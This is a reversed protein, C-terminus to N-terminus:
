KLLTVNGKYSYASGNECIVEAIYVFVDPHPVVGNIKGDWGFVPDNPKFNAKDFVLGGWRNFVKFSKVLQIGTARVMLIDNLGDNDPTFANPIYVQADSCFAEIHISDTGACGYYNTATVFYTIKRHIDAIPLPCTTCSLFTSPSWSWTKMPGETYTTKLPFLTGTSLLQNPGLDIKPYNGVGVMVYATDRFCNFEDSGIVRYRITKDPTSIPNSITDGSLFTSPSWEFHKAGSVILQKSQGICISDDKSVAIKFNPIVKVTITDYSFCGNLSSGKVTYPTTQLPTANPNSCDTCSLGQTPYWNYFTAGSASIAITSGRCITVDPTGKVVPTPYINITAKATDFCGFKTGAVFTYQLSAQKSYANKFTSGYVIDGNSVTWKMLSLSDPSTIFSNLIMEKGTCASTDGSIQAQPKSKVFIPIAQILTDSCGSFGTVISQITYTNSSTYLHSEKFKNGVSADGFDWKISSLGYFANSTDKLDLKTSGCIADSVFSFGNVIKDITITDTLPVSYRCGLKSTFWVKPLFKGPKIYQHYVVWDTTTILIGDGFDWRISDTSLPKAEFRVAKKICNFGASYLVTGNPAVIAINKKGIYNCGGSGKVLLTASFLGTKVYTHVVSDGQQINGDGFDWTSNYNNRYNHTFTIDVPTCNAITDSAKYIIQVTDVIQIIRELTDLCVIGPANTKYAILQVTYLGSKTYGYGPDVYKSNKGDGFNWFYSDAGTSRNTFYISDGICAKYTNTGFDPKPIGFVNIEEVTSTDTCGNTALLAVQYKGASLFTYVVTDINKTTSRINGDGFDWRFASVGSSNNIFQVTLPLCGEKENGNVAVDLKITNPTVIVAYQSSDMGCENVAYLKVYFTDRKNTYFIHSISDKALTSDKSGDGFDWIYRNGLGKSTNNFSVKLPSCGITRSPSFISKPRAKVRIRQRYEVVNCISTVKLTVTYITDGYNPNSFFTVDDPQPKNSTIGNGFDWEYTFFNIDNTQNNFKVKLPGCGVSDSVAFTPHPLKYTIFRYQISDAKCGFLSNTILKVVVTDDENVISFNPLDIGNGHFQNDIYWLYDENRGPYTTLKVKAPTILFPPCGFTDIPNFYAKANPNVLVNVTFPEGACKGAAGSIPVVQYRLSGSADTNNLLKQSIEDMPITQIAGGTVVGAPIGLPQAWTYSTSFPVIAGNNGNIPKIKFAVDTCITESLTPIYPKPNVTVVVEFGSGGCNGSAPSVLYTVVAPLNTVNQLLQGINSQPVNQATSGTVAGLPTIVPTKWVYQTGIPAEAPVINFSTGSCITAAQPLVTPKPNVTVVVKFSPGACNGATPTINYTINQSITTTNILLQGINTTGITEALGGTIANPVTSVPIPWTYLTNMPVITGPAANTPIIEFSNESCITTNFAQIKPIPDVLVSVEFPAGACNGGVPIVVYSVKAQKNTINTLTQVFSAQATSQNTAGTIAGAPIISQISWKYTTGVPIINGAIVESPTLDIQTGSCIAPKSIAAIIPVPLVSVMLKFDAGPCAGITPSITYTVKGLAPTVNTLKQNITTLYTQQATAGTIAGFPAIEPLDWRYKTGIATSPIDVTFDINSCIDLSQNPIYPTTNVNVQILARNGECGEVTKQSVYYIYSNKTATNPIPATTSGVNGTADNYWYLTNGTEANATLAIAQDGQCYVIPSTVLPLGPTSNMVIANTSVPSNCNNQTVFVAYLGAANLGANPINISANTGTQTFGNPGSWTYIAGNIPNSVNMILNTTTCFPGSANIAPAIPPLPDVLEFPGVMNSYCGNLVVQIDAYKGATLNILRIDGTNNSTFPASIPLDNKKYNITYLSSPEFGSITISGEIGKCTTPNTSIARIVPVPKTTVLITARPSECGLASKQSVYYNLTGNTATSPIPVITSAVGGTPLSYWQLINNETANAILAVATAYQCYTIPSVIPAVPTPNIILETAGAPSNCNAVKVVLQYTGAATLAANNVIISNSQTVRSFGNPGTWIYTTNAQNFTTSLTFSNGSCIAGNNSVTPMAPPTPDTLIFPGVVNSFCGNLAVQIESYTGATLNNLQIVGSTNSALTINQIIDNKKYNITYMSSAVFGNITITGETGLCTTPNNSNASITPVPKTTVLITARPSECGAATKQSVYYYVDGTTTTLPIPATTSAVGGTATTYWQLTNNNQVTANLAVANGYQCYIVPSTITPAIPTPNITVETSAEPSNCNAVKVVLKYIGAASIAANTISTSNTTTSKNFGNPGTWTYITNAVNFTTTLTVDNGSCIPGNNSITPMEPPTPDVLTFPGIRNSICGTLRTEIKDYIGKTLNIIIINGSGNATLNLNSLVGDKEYYIAYNSLPKFGSLTITGSNGNCTLPNTFVGSITPVVNVLVTSTADSFCGTTANTGRVTYTTNTAPTATVTAGSLGSLTIDNTWNFNDAGSATLVLSFGPCVSGSNVVVKPNANVTVIGTASTSCGTATTKGIVTYTTTTTPSATITTGTIASLGTAPSWAYTDGGSATLSVSSGECIVGGVVAIVPNPNVTVTSTGVATCGAGSSGTVTYTTTVLPSAIVSTGTIASLGTNPTWSYTVAGNATLMVSKGACISSSNVSIVPSNVVTVTSSTSSSCGTATNSGKVTYTTTATPTATVKSGTTSSLTGGNTWTYTDAGTANLDISFGPCISGSNVLVKPNANVSVIGTASSSCGTATTKGIVTYTTTTTPSATITTGTIASLGTAPSWAYTDGGSATLSVSSGECIVGGVVTIVPNPHVTVTSTGKATCGAGSSGTVTYTTTASPSANVSTGTIASLGTNPAWDYTTAGSATLVVSKGVCITASNVTIVPSNVVTVITSKSSSCGTATYSGTVTYTSTATPTATVTSGTTSSLTGGTWTYTDAGSVELSADKGICISINDNKLTLVPLPNVTITFTQPLGTCGNYVPTVTITAVKAVTTSNLVKLAGINGTGTAALGISVDTNTWNFTTNPVTSTFNIPNTTTNACLVVDNPKTLSPTPKINIASNATTTGCSNTIALQVTYNGTNTFSIQPNTSTNTTGGVFNGGTATWNYTANTINCDITATPKVTAAQCADAFAAVFVKPKAKVTIVKTVLTSSCTNNPAITILKITYEGPNDFRFQPNQANKNTNNTYSFSATSPDCGTIPKYDVTWEFKNQGCTIVNTSGSAVVTFPACGEAADTTFSATPFPNVCVIKKTTAAGCLTNNAMTLSIDYKGPTSFKVFLNNTGSTWLTPDESGFGDGTDGTTINYSTGVRDGLIKWFLNGATCNDNQVNKGAYGANTFKVTQNECIITDTLTIKPDPKDSVYIPLISGSAKGCPNEIKVFAGFANSYLDVGSTLRNGCSSQLFINKVTDPAPHYYVISPKGDGYNLTYSTGSPNNEIGTLLFNQADGVCITSGGTGSIGGAPINGVFIKYSKEEYCSGNYVRYIMTKLGVSYSHSISANFSTTTYDPSNDGWIFTYSTNTAKTNSPNTFQFSTGTSSCIKFYTEGNILDKGTGNLTADPKQKISITKVKQNTCGNNDKITLQVDFNQSGTGATVNFNHSPNFKDEKNGDKYDWSYTFGSGETGQTGNSLLYKFDVPTNACVDNANYGGSWSCM